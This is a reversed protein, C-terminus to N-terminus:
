GKIMFFIWVPNGTGYTTAKKPQYIPQPLLQNNFNQQYQHFDSVM